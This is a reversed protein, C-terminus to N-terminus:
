RGLVGELVWSEYEKWGANFAIQRGDPHLTTDRLGEMVLGTSSPAGGTTPVRWLTRQIPAAVADGRPATWRTVLLSAGDTTWGEFSLAEPERVRLLERPDGAGSWLMLTRVEGSVDRRNALYAVATTHPARAHRDIHTVGPDQWERTAATRVDHLVVRGDAGASIVSRGDHALRFSSNRSRSFDFARVVRGTVADRLLVQQRGECAIGEPLWRARPECGVVLSAQGTARDVISLRPNNAGAVLLKTGDPSWDIPRALLEETVVRAERGATTDFVWLERDHRDNRESTYALWRGDHSWVPYFNGFALRPSLPTPAADPADLRAVFVEPHGSTLDVHLAGTTRM